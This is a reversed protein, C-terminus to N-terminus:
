THSISVRAILFRLAMLTVFFINALIAWLFFNMVSFIYVAASPFSNAISNSFGFGGDVIIIALLLLSTFSLYGFMYAMFQRRSLTEPRDREEDANYIKLTAKQNDGGVFPKDLVDSPFTSVATLSAVYFPFALTLFGLISKLTGSSVKPWEQALVLSSFYLIFILIIPIGFDFFFKSKLKKGYRIRLYTIPFFSYRLWSIM